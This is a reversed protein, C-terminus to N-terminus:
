KYKRFITVAHIESHQYIDVLSCPTVDLFVATKMTVGTIVEFKFM